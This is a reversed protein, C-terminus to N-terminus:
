MIFILSYNNYLTNVPSFVSLLKNGAFERAEETTIQREYHLDCKNGVMMIIASPEYDNLEEIWLPLSRFSDSNTIDYVCIFGTCGRRCQSICMYFSVSLVHCVTCTSIKTLIINQPSQEDFFIICVFLLKHM